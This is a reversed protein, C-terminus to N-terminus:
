CWFGHKYGLTLLLKSHGILPIHFLVKGVLMDQTVPPAICEGLTCDQDVTPNADGMTLLSYSSGTKMKLVVRHIIPEGPRYPSGYIIIDGTKTFNITQNRYSVGVAKNELLLLQPVEGPLLELTPANIDDLKAYGVVAMDGINFHGKMSCSIITVFPSSTGLLTTLVVYYFFAAVIFTIVLDKAWQVYKADKSEKSPNM